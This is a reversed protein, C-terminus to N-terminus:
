RVAGISVGSRFPIFGTQIRYNVSFASLNVKLVGFFGPCGL